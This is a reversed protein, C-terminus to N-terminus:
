IFKYCWTLLFLVGSSTGSIYSKLIKDLILLKFSTKYFLISKLPHRKKLSAQLGIYAVIHADPLFEVM